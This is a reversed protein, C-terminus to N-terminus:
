HKHAQIKEAGPLKGALEQPNHILIPFHQTCIHITQGQYVLSVLPAHDSDVGCYLCTQITESMM